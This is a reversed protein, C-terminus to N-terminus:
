RPLFGRDHESAAGAEAPPRATPRYCAVEHWTFGFGPATGAVQFHSEGVGPVPSPQFKPVLLKVGSAVFRGDRGTIVTTLLPSEDRRRGNNTNIVYVTAGAVPRGSPDTARGSIEITEIHSEDDDHGTKRPAQKANEDTRKAIKEPQQKPKTAGARAPADDRAVLRPGSAMAGIGIATLGAVILGVVTTKLKTMLMARQVGRALALVSASSGRAVTEASDIMQATMEALTPSIAIAPGTSRILDSGALMPGVVGPAVGRRVLRDRLQQRGRNLRSKVTGLPWGLQRAAKDLSREELDCLM